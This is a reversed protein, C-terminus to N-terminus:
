IKPVIHLVIFQVNEVPLVVYHRFLIFEDIMIKLVVLTKLLGCSCFLLNLIIVM